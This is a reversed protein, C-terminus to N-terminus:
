TGLIASKSSAPKVALDVTYATYPTPFLRLAYSVLFPHKGKVKFRLGQAM